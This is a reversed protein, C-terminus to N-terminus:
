LKIAGSQRINLFMCSGAGFVSELTTKFQDKKEIKVFAQVTGAFGGGHVRATAGISECLALALSLGQEKVNKVTYVNQLYKYSSNGSLITNKLFLDTDKNKLAVRQAEVRENETYFHFARLVARDGLKKRLCAAKALFEEKKVFRLTEKKFEAAVAKMENPVSAYDDTLDTHNGGTNIICLAYGHESLDFEVKEVFPSSVSLFDIYVFGGLACATQDMLGCPKGFFVNEAYKGAKALEIASIKADNYFHNFINGVMIEFAASSSLGSGSLVDSTTYAVFGGVAFGNKGFADLIGSIIASSGGKRVKEPSIDDLMIVDERYGESKIHVSQENTKSAIAIIDIDVSAAIVKGNNHDTHNGIIETRGPVSFL